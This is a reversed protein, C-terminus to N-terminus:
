QIHAKDGSGHGLHQHMKKSVRLGDGKSAAPQLHKHETGQTHSLAGEKNDHSIIPIHSNAIWQAISDDEVPAQAHPQCCPSPDTTGKGTGLNKM